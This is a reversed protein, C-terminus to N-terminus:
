SRPADVLVDLGDTSVECGDLSVSALRTAVKVAEVLPFTETHVKTSPHAFAHLDGTVSKIQQVGDRLDGITERLQPNDETMDLALEVAMNMYNLPNNIEHLLGAALKGLGNMKVSQILQLKVAKLKELTEALEDNRTALDRELRGRAVINSVRTRLEASSFPKTLFDDVGDRLLQLKTMQDERATLLLIKPEPTLNRERVALTVGRGDLRPMMLDLVILDPPRRDIAELAQVGDIVEIVEFRPRLMGAIFRRMDPEDDAVLVLPKREDADVPETQKAAPATLLLDRMPDDSSAVRPAAHNDAEIGAAALPMRVTFTTGTGVASTASISGGHAHMLEQALALGIGVGTYERTQSADVQHFRDFIHPIDAEPIGCGTDTIRILAEGDAREWSVEISGGAPTFKIANSLINLVVREFRSPDISAVLGAAGDATVTLGKRGAHHRVSDVLGSLYPGLEIPSRQLSLKAEDLRVVELLDNILRLLRMANGRVLRLTEVDDDEFREGDELLDEVPSLILTLPTRFEHSINAFFDNKMRDLES